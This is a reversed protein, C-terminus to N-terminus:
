NGMRANGGFFLGVSNGDDLFLYLERHYPHPYRGSWQLCPEVGDRVCLDCLWCVNNKHYSRWCSAGGPDDTFWGLLQDVFVIYFISVVFLCIMNFYAAQWVSKEARDPLQAGLNQGVLTAAANAIGMAPLISFIILRIGITYGAVADDGFNAVIRMLFVWSASAILFQGAGTAAIDSIRKILSWSPKFHYRKLNITGTKGFLIWLQFLVGIGRGILTAIAAGKLGLEPFPGIGMILMPDLIINIGNAIFLSRMAMSADGAGRFIGNLLFLLIIVINTGLMIRTYVVGSEILSASGGMLRLIDGAYIFGFIGIVIALSIGILIAQAASRSAAEPNDEGVRRAVVATAAMALGFAISYVLTIVSETLGVTAMAETGIRAVFFADVLAFLSEMVMELIMPISLLVLAKTINGKTYVKEEASLSLKIVEFGKQLFTKISFLASRGSSDHM